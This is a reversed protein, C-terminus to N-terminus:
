EGNAPIFDSRSFSLNVIINTHTETLTLNQIGSVKKLDWNFHKAMTEQLVDAGTVARIQRILFDQKGIWVTRSRGPIETSVVYCDVGGVIEDTERDQAFWSDGLPDGWPIDFFARPITLAAGGSNERAKSLAIERTEENQPGMGTDLFNGCGSSWVAQAQSYNTSYFSEVNQQWGIMYFNTRALRTTFSTNITADNLTAVVQGEDSYSILSAYKERTKEMIQFPSLSDGAISNPLAAPTAGDAVTKMAAPNDAQPADSAGATGPQLSVLM